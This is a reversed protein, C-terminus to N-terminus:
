SSRWSSSRAFSACAACDSVSFCPWRSGLAPAVAYCALWRLNNALATRFVPDAALERYNGLGVWVKADVDNWSYVTVDIKVGSHKSEYEKVLGDWYKQSSNDASDGYDAAILKLTVDGSGGGTLGCGGLVATMGLASVAAITGTRGRRQVARSGLGVTESNLM